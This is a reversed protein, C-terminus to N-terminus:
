ADTRTAQEPSWAFFRCQSWNRTAWFRRLGDKEFCIRRYTGQIAPVDYPNTQSKCQRWTSCDSSPIMMLHILHAMILPIHDNMRLLHPLLIKSHWMSDFKSHEFCFYRCHTHFVREREAKDWQTLCRCLGREGSFCHRLIWNVHGVYTVLFTQTISNREWAYTNGRIEKVHM